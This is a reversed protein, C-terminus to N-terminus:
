ALAHFLPKLAPYLTRYHAYAQEYASVHAALPATREVPRITAACSEAVSSWHGAGAGALLAAGYAAGETTNVTILEVNLVDALIQRWLASRAGGGTVRVQAIPGAHEAIWAVDKDHNAANVVILYADAARRYVICDDVIGGDPKCMVTYFALGDRLRAVSNTVIRQVARGAQPGEITVEGMHSVDFLGVAARVTRHEAVIGAYQVPMLFGAFEVM